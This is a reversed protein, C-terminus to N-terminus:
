AGGLPAATDCLSRVIEDQVVRDLGVADRSKLFAKGPRGWAEADLLKPISQEPLRIGSVDFREAYEEFPAEVFCAQAAEIFPSPADSYSVVLQTKARTMAFPM